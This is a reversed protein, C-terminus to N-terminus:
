IQEEVKFSDKNENREKGGIIELGIQIESYDKIVLNMDKILTVKLEDIKLYRCKTTIDFPCRYCIGSIVYPYLTDEIPVADNLCIGSQIDEGYNQKLDDISITENEYTIISNINGVVKTICLNNFEIYAIENGNTNSIISCYNFKGDVNGTVTYEDSITSQLKEISFNDIEITINGITVAKLKKM